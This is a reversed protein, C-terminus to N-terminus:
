LGPFTEAPTNNIAKQSNVPPNNVPMIYVHQM